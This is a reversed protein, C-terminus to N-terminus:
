FRAVKLSRSRLNGAKDYVRVTVTQNGRPGPSWVYSLSPASSQAQLVKDLYLEIRGVAVDDTASINISVSSSGSALSMHSIIPLVTDVVVTAAGAASVNGAADRAWAHATRSGAGSFTFSAPVAASWGAASPSPAAASETVLYGTVAVNDSATLSSIPVTTANHYAPLAFSTIAPASRDYFVSVTVSQAYGVNGAADYARASISYSGNAAAATNWSFGHPAQTSTAQLVGNVLFEVRAVGVDDVASASVAVSGSLVGGSSPSTIAVTPPTSDNLVTVALPASSGVNGAADYARVSLVHSGNAEAATNWSYSVSGQNTSFVVAGDILLDVRTVGVDDSAGAALTVSGSMTAGAAPGNLTVAPPLNDGAVKVVVGGSVGENGAADFAKASITYTGPTLSATNWSYSFPATTSEALLAGNALFHVKAVGVNDSASASLSIVGSVASDNVPSTISVTPPLSEPLHIVNSYSSEVGASNYATVAFYYSYRPDLGDVTASTIAGSDISAAGPASFPVADSGPQYRLLYGAIDPDPSPDWQLTAGAALASLPTALLVALLLLLVLCSLQENVKKM